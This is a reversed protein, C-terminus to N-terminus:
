GSGSLRLSFIGLGKQSGNGSLGNRNHGRIRAPEKVEPAVPKQSIENVKSNVFAPFGRKIEGHIEIRQNTRELTPQVIFAFGDHSPPAFGHIEKLSLNDPQRFRDTVFGPILVPLLRAGTPNSGHQRWAIVNATERVTGASPCGRTKGKSRTGDIRERKKLVAVCNLPRESMRARQKNRPSGFRVGKDSYGKAFRSQFRASTRLLKGQKM